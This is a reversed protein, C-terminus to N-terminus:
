SVIGPQGGNRSAVEALASLQTLPPPHFRQIARGKTRRSGGQILSPVFTDAGTRLVTVM